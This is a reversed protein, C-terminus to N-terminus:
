LGLSIVSSEGAPLVINNALLFFNLNNVATFFNKLRTPYVQAQELAMVPEVEIQAMIFSSEGLGILSNILNLHVQSATKPVVLSKLRKVANIHRTSSLRLKAVAAPDTEGAAKVVLALENEITQDNYASMIEGVARSYNEFAVADNGASTPIDKLEYTPTPLYSPLDAAKKIASQGAPSDDASMQAAQKALTEGGISWLFVGGSILVLIFIIPVIVKLRLQRM